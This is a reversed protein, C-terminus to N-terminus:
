LRCYTSESGQADQEMSTKKNSKDTTDNKQAFYIHIYMYTHIYNVNDTVLSSLYVLVIDILM